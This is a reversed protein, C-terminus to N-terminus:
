AAVEVLTCPCACRGSCKKHDALCSECWWDKALSEREAETWEADVMLFFQGTPTNWRARQEESGLAVGLRHRGGDVHLEAVVPTPEARPIVLTRPAMEALEVTHGIGPLDLPSLPEPWDEPLLSVRAPPLEASLRAIEAAARDGLSERRFDLAISGLPFCAAVILLLAIM